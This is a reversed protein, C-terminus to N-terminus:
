DCGSSSERERGWRWETELLKVIEVCDWNNVSYFSFILLWYTGFLPIPWGFKLWYLVIQLSYLMFFLCDYGFLQLVAWLHCCIAITSGKMWKRRAKQSVFISFRTEMSSECRRSNTHTLLGVFNEGSLCKAAESALTLSLHHTTHVGVLFTHIHRHTHTHTCMHAFPHPASVISLGLSSFVQFSRSGWCEGNGHSCPRHAHRYTQAQINSFFFLAKAKCLLKEFFQYCLYDIYKWFLWHFNIYAM